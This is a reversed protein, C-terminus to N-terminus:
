LWTITRDHHLILHHRRQLQSLADGADEYSFQDHSGLVGNVADMVVGLTPFSDRDLLARAFLSSLAMRFTEVRTYGLRSSASEEKRETTGEEPLHSARPLYVLDQFPVFSLEFEHHRISLAAAIERDTFVRHRPYVMSNISETLSGVTVPGDSSVFGLKWIFLRLRRDSIGICDSVNTPAPSSRLSPLYSERTKMVAGRRSSSKTQGPVSSQKHSAPIMGIDKPEKSQAEHAKASLRAQNAHSISHDGANYAAKGSTGGLGARGKPRSSPPQPQFRFSESSTSTPSAQIRNKKNAATIYSSSTSPTLFDATRRSSRALIPQLVILIQSKV